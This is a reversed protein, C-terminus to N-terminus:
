FRIYNYWRQSISDVSRATLIDAAAEFAARFNYPHKTIYKVILQDETSTFRPRSNTM